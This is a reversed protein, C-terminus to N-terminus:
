AGKVHEVILAAIPEIFPDHLGHGMHKFIHKKANPILTALQEGHELPFAYDETGHIVLTPLNLSKLSEVRSPACMISLFQRKIGDAHYGREFIQRAIERTKEEDFFASPVYARNINLRDNVFDEVNDITGQETFFYKMVSPHPPPLTTDNSTTAICTLSQIRIPYHIALLQSIMGGMSIGAVHTQKINLADMVAIIDEAMHSLSYPPTVAKGAKLTTLTELINPIPLHDYFPSLGIDRNEATIVYIGASVLREIFIPSWQILQSGLGMILMLAPDNPNGHTEYHLLNQM